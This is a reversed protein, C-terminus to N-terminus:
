ADVVHRETCDHRHVVNNAPIRDSEMKRVRASVKAQTCVRRMPSSALRDPARVAYKNGSAWPPQTTTRKAVPVFKRMVGLCCLHMYDAPVQSILGLSTRTLPSRAAHHNKDSMENFSTDTRLTAAKDPFIVRGAYDGHQECKDCGHYAGHGRTCKIFARAPTDCILASIRVEFRTGNIILGCSQLENIEAVLDALYLETDHPKNSGCYLAIM